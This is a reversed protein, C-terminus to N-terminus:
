FPIMEEEDEDNIRGDDDDWLIVDKNVVLDEINTM